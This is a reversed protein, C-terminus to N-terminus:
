WFVRWDLAPVEAPDLQMENLRYGNLNDSELILTYDVGAPIYYFQDGRSEDGFINPYHKGTSTHALVLTVGGYVQNVHDKYEELSDLALVKWDQGVDYEAFIYSSYDIIYYKGESLVYNYVHGGGNNVEYGHLIFGVEDYDGDLLYRALNASSGCNGTATQMVERASMNYHWLGDGYWTSKDGNSDLVRAALMYMLVDGATKVKEQVVEPKANVLARAEDPTLTVGGLYLPLDYQDINEPKIHGYKLEMYEENSLIVDGNSYLLDTQTIGKWGNKEQILIADGDYILYANEICAKTEEDSLVLAMYEDDSQVLADPFSPDRRCMDDCQMGNVIDFYWIGEDTKLRNVAMSPTNERTAFLTCIEMDDCLLYTAINVLDQRGIGKDATYGPRLFYLADNYLYTTDGPHFATHYDHWATPYRRDLYAKADAVTSIAAQLKEAPLGDLDAIQEDTLERETLIPASAVAEAGACAAFCVALLLVACFVLRKKM